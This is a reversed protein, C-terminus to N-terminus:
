SGASLLKYLTPSKRLPVLRQYINAVITDTYDKALKAAKEQSYKKLHPAVATIIAASEFLM